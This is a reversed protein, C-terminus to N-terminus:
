LIGWPSKAGPGEGFTLQKPTQGEFDSLWIQRDGGVFALELETM